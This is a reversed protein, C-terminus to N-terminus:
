IPKTIYIISGNLLFTYFRLKVLNQIIKKMQILNINKFIDYEGFIQCM